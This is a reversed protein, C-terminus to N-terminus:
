KVQTMKKSIQWQAVNILFILLFSIIIMLLAVVSAGQVDYLDLKSMIILPAIESVLPVNGAIFIVSGYEGLSRAFGMGAGSIVAPLLVPIIIRTLTIRKNAGLIAAAEEYAPDLKELVPQVARVIFPLSVFILAVAIGLPTYAIQIGIKALLGGFLGTPAYLSALAIGAVATPLAFPLDILANMLSKGRFDYRVLIWALLFGFILNVSTALLAMKFSLWISAIVRESGIVAWIDTSGLQLATAILLGLPLLIMSGLWLLTITIGRKFFPLVTRM